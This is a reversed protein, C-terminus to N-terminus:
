VAARQELWRLLTLFIKDPAIPKVIFDNM